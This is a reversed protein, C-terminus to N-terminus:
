DINKFWSTGQLGYSVFSVGWTCLSMYFLTLKSLFNWIALIPSSFLSIIHILNEGWTLLGIWRLKQSAKGYLKLLLPVFTLKVQSTQNM